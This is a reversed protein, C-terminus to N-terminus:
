ERLIGPRSRASFKAPFLVAVWVYCWWAWPTNSGKQAGRSGSPGKFEQCNLRNTYNLGCCFNAESDSPGLMKANRPFRGGKGAGSNDDLISEAM